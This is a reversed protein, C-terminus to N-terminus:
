RSGSRRAGANSSKHFGGNQGLVAVCEGREITFTVDQLACVRRRRRGERRVFGKRLGAVEVAPVGAPVHVTGALFTPVATTM